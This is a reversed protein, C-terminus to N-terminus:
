PILQPRSLTTRLLWLASRHWITRDLNLEEVLESPDGLGHGAPAPNLDDVDEGVTISGHLFQGVLDGHRNGVGAPV